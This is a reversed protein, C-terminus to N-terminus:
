SRKSRLTNVLAALGEAPVLPQGDAGTVETKTKTAFDKDTRDLLWKSVDVDKSRVAAAVNIKAQLRPQHKLIEKRQSFEPNAECYDYLTRTGIDAYLCAQEDSAGVLFAEELKRLVDPTVAIPRGGAHKKPKVSM